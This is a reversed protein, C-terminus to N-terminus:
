ANQKSTTKNGLLVKLQKHTDNSVFSWFASCSKSKGNYVLLNRAQDSYSSNCRCRVWLGTSVQLVSSMSIFHIKPSYNISM